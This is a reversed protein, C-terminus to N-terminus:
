DGHQSATHLLPSMVDCIQLKPVSTDQHKGRYLVSFAELTWHISQLPLRSMTCFLSIGTEVHFLVGTVKTVSSHYFMKFGNNYFNNLMSSLPISKLIYLLLYAKSMSNTISMLNNYNKNIAMKNLFLKSRHWFPLIISFNTIHALNMWETYPGMISAKSCLFSHKRHM